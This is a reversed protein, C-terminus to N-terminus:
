QGGELCHHDNMTQLGNATNKCTLYLNCVEIILDGTSLIGDREPSSLDYKIRDRVELAAALEDRERILASVILNRRFLWLSLKGDEFGLSISLALNEVMIFPSIFVVFDM